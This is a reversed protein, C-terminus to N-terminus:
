LLPDDAHTSESDEPREEQDEDESPVQVGISRLFKKDTESFRFGTMLPSPTEARENRRQIMIGSFVTLLIDYGKERATEFIENLKESGQLLEQLIGAIAMAFQQKQEEDRM